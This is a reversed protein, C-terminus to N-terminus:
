RTRRGLAEWHSDEPDISVMRGETKSRDIYVQFADEDGRHTLVYHRLEDLDMIDYNLFTM